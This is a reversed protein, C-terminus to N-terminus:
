DWGPNWLEKSVSWFTIKFMKRLSLISNQRKFSAPLKRHYFLFTLTMAIVTWYIMVM